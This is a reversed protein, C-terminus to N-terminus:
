PLKSPKWVQYEKLARNLETVLSTLEEETLKLPDKWLSIRINKGRNARGNFLVIRVGYNAYIVKDMKSEGSIKHWWVSPM